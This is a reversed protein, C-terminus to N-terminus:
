PTNPKGRKATPAVSTKVLLKRIAESVFCGKIDKEMDRHLILLAEISELVEETHTLEDRERKLNELEFENNNRNM